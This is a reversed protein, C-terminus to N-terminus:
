LTLATKCLRIERNYVFLVKKGKFRTLYSAKHIDKYQRIKVSNQVRKIFSQQLQYRDGRIKYRQSLKIAFHHIIEERQEQTIINIKNMRDVMLEM